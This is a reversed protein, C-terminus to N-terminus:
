ANTGVFAIFRGIKMQGNGAQIGMFLDLHHGHGPKIFGLGLIKHVLVPKHVGGHFDSAARRIRQGQEVRKFLNFGAHVFLSFGKPEAGPFDIQIDNIKIVPDHFGRFQFYGMGPHMFSM